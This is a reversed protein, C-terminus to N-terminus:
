YGGFQRGDWPGKLALYNTDFAVLDALTAASGPASLTARARRYEADAKLKTTAHTDGALISRDIVASVSVFLDELSATSALSVYDNYGIFAKAQKRVLHTGLNKATNCSYLHVIKETFFRATRPTDSVNAVDNGTSGLRVYGEFSDTDGHGMGSFLTWSKGSGCEIILQPATARAGFLAIESGAGMRTFVRRRAAHVQSTASDHDTELFLVNM